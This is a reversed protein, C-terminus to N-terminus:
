YSLSIMTRFFSAFLFSLSFTLRFYILCAHVACMHLQPPHHSNILYPIDSNSVYYSTYILNLKSWHQKKFFTSFAHVGCQPPHNIDHTTTRESLYLVAQGTKFSFKICVLVKEQKAQNAITLNCVTHKKVRFILTQQNVKTLKPRLLPVKNDFFLLCLLIWFQMERLQTTIRKLFHTGSYSVGIM